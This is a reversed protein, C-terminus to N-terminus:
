TIPNYVYRASSELKFQGKVVIKKRNRLPNKKIKDTIRANKDNHTPEKDTISSLALPVILTSNVFGKYRLSIIKPFYTPTMDNKSTM